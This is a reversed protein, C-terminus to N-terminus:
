EHEITKLKKMADLHLENINITVNDKKPAFREPNNMSAMWKRVSVREKARQVQASTLDGHEPLDDVISLCEEAIADAHLRRGEDMEAAFQSNLMRSLFSRSCRLEEALGKVTGGKAIYDVLEMTKVASEVRRKLPRGPM